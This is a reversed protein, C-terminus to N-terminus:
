LLLLAIALGSSLGLTMHIKSSREYNRKASATYEDFLASTRSLAAINSEIDYRGLISGLESLAGLEEKRLCQLSPAENLCRMFVESFTKEGMDGMQREMSSFFDSAGGEQGALKHIIRQLPPAHFEIETRICRIAMSFGDLLRYRQLLARNAGHAALASASLICIFGAIKLM